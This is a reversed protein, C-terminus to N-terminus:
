KYFLYFYKKNLLIWQNAQLERTLWATSERENLDTFIRTKKMFNSMDGSLYSLLPGGRRGRCGRCNTPALFLILIKSINTKKDGGM